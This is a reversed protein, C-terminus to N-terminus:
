GLGPDSGALFLEAGVAAGFLIWYHFFNILARHFPMSDRSFVHVFATELIRKAYHAVGLAFAVNQSFSYPRKGLLYMASYTLIPGLYELYFVSRWLMQSGLDKLELEDQDQLGLLKLPQCGDALEAKTRLLVLKQQEPPLRSRKEIARKLDKITGGELSALDVEFPSGKKPRVILKMYGISTSAQRRSAQASSAM